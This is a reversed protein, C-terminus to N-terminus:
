TPTFLVEIFVRNGSPASAHVEIGEAARPDLLEPPVTLATRNPSQAVDLVREDDGPDRHGRLRRRAV